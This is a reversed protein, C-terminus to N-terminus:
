VSWLTFGWVIWGLLGGKALGRWFKEKTGRDSGVCVGGRGSRFGGGKMVCQCPLAVSARYHWPTELVVAFALSFIPFKVGRPEFFGSGITVLTPM